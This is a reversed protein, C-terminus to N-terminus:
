KHPLFCRDCKSSSTVMRPTANQWTQRVRGSRRKAMASLPVHTSECSALAEGGTLVAVTSEGRAIRLAAEDLLKAPQKGGHETCTQYRPNVGLSQSLLGPLDHYPWTWTQVVSLSDISNLLVQSTENSTNTDKMAGQIAELMLSAPEKADEVALSRNRIDAVGVIVPQM